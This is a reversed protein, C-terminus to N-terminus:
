LPQITREPLVNVWVPELHTSKSFTNSLYVNVPLAVQEKGPLHVIRGTNEM